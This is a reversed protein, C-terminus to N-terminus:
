AGGERQAIPVPGAGPVIEVFRIEVRQGPQPASADDPAGIHVQLRPGADLEVLGVAYPIRNALEAVFSRRFVVRAQLTGGGPVPRWEVAAGSDYPSLPSPPWFALGTATCHPLALVRDAAAQWFPATLASGLAPHAM